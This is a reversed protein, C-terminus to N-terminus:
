IETKVAKEFPSYVAEVGHGGCRYVGSQAM